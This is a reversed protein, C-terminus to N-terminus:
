FSIEQKEEPLLILPRLSDHLIFIDKRESMIYHKNENTFWNLFLLKRFAGPIYKIHEEKRRGPEEGNVVM